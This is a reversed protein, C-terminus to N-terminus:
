FDEDSCMWFLTRSIAWSVEDESYWKSVLSWALNSLDSWCELFDSSSNISRMSCCFWFNFCILFESTSRFEYIDRWESVVSTILSIDSFSGDFNRTCSFWIELIRADKSLLKSCSLIFLMISASFNLGSCIKSFVLISILM